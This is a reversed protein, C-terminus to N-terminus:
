RQGPRLTLEVPERKGDLSPAWPEAVLEAHPAIGRDQEEPVAPRDLRDRAHRRGGPQLPHGTAEARLTRMRIRTASPRAAPVLGASASRQSVRTLPLTVVSWTSMVRPSWVPRVHRPPGCSARGDPPPPGTSRTSAPPPPPHPIVSKTPSNLAM